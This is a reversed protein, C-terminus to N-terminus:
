RHVCHFLCHFCSIIVSTDSRQRMDVLQRPEQIWELLLVLQPRSTRDAPFRLKERLPSISPPVQIIGIDAVLYRRQCLASSPNTVTTGDGDTAAPKITTANGKNQGAKRSEGADMAIADLQETSSISVAGDKVVKNHAWSRQHSGTARQQSASSTRGDVVTAWCSRLM